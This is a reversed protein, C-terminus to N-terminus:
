LWEAVQSLANQVNPHNWQNFSDDIHEIPGSSLPPRLAVFVCSCSSLLHAHISTEFILKFENDYDDKHILL